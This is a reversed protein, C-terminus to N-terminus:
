LFETRIHSIGQRIVRFNYLMVCNRWTVELFFPNDSPLPKSLAQWTCVLDRIGTEALARIAHFNDQIPASQPKRIQPLGFASDGILFYDQGLVCNFTDAWSDCARSDHVIGPELKALGLTGDLLFVYLGKKCNVAKFGSYNERQRRPNSSRELPHQKGDILGVLGEFGPPALLSIQQIKQRSFIPHAERRALLAYHLCVLGLFLYRSKSAPSLGTMLITEATRIGSACYRVAMLLAFESEVMRVRRRGFKLPCSVLRRCFEEHFLPLLVRVSERTLRFVLAFSYDPANRIFYEFSGNSVGTLGAVSISRPISTIPTQTNLLLLLLLFLQM